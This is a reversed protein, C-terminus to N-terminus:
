KWYDQIRQYEELSIELVDGHKMGYPFSFGEKAEKFIGSALDETIFPVYGKYDRDEGFYDLLLCWKGDSLRYFLPAEYENAKLQSMWADFAEVRKYTGTLSDGKELIVAFPNSRSKLFRWYVGDVVRICPDVVSADEKACLFKAEGFNEFDETEAYYISKAGYDNSSHSSAWYLVYKQSAPDYMANPGWCCGFNGDGPEILQQASWHVLDKSRWLSIKQSGYRGMNPWQRQYKKEFNESMCLDTGLIVFQGDKTRLISIDRVGREGKDAVFVPAGGNVAEWVYGDRSLAFHVQEDMQKDPSKYHVLLYAKEEM